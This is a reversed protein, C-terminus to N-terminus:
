GKCSISSNSTFRHRRKSSGKGTLRLAFLVKRRVKRRICPLEKYPNIFTIRATKRSVTLGEHRIQFIAPKFQHHTKALARFKPTFSLVERKPLYDIEFRSLDRKVPNSFNFNVNAHIKNKRKM